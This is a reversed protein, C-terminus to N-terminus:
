AVFYIVYHLKNCSSVGLHAYLDVFGVLSVFNLVGNEVDPLWTPGWFNLLITFILSYDLIMLSVLIASAGLVKAM